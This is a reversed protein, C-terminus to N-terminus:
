IKYFASSNTGKREAASLAIFLPSSAPLEKLCYTPCVPSFFYSKKSYPKSFRFLTTGKCGSQFRAVFLPQYFLTFCNKAKYTKFFFNSFYKWKKNVFPFFTSIKASREQLLPISFLLCNKSKNPLWIHNM